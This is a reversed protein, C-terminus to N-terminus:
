PFKLIRVSFLAEAQNEAAKAKAVEIVRVFLGIIHLVRLNTQATLRGVTKRLRSVTQHLVPLDGGFIEFM